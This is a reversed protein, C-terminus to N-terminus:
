QAPPTPTTHTSPKYRHLAIPLAIALPIWFFAFRFVLLGGLVSAGNGSLSSLQLAIWEFVGLGGPIQSAMGVTNALMFMSTSQLFSVSAHPLLTHFVAATTLVDAASVGLHAAAVPLTPARLRTKGIRLSWRNACAALYFAAGAASGCGLLQFLLTPLGLADALFRATLGLAIGLWVLWGVAFLVVIRLYVATIVKLDFGYEGYLKLRLASGSLASVGVNMATCTAVFSTRLVVRFPVNREGQWIWALYDYLAIVLFSVAIFFAAILLADAEVRSAAQFAGRWDARWLERAAVLLLVASFLSVLIRVPKAM